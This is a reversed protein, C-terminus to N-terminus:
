PCCFTNTVNGISQEVCPPPLTTLICRVYHMPGDAGCQSDGASDVTCTAADFVFGADPGCEIQICLAGTPACLGCSPSCCKEGARCTTAGCASGGDAGADVRVVTGGTGGTV